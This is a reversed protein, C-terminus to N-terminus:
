LGWRPLHYGRAPMEPCVRQLEVKLFDSFKAEGVLTKFTFEQM